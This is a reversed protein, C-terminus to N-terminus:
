FLLMNVYIIKAHLYDLDPHVSARVCQYESTHKEQQREDKTKRGRNQKLQKDENWRDIYNGGATQEGTHKYM